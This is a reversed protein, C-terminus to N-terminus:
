DIIDKIIEEPIDKILYKRHSRRNIITNIVDIKNEFM